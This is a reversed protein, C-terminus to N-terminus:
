RVPPHSVADRKKLLHIGRMLVASSAILPGLCWPSIVTWIFEELSEERSSASIAAVSLCLLLSLGGAFSFLYAMTKKPKEPSALVYGVAGGLIGGIPVSLIFALIFQGDKAGSEFLAYLGMVIASLVIIGVGGGLFIVAINRFLTNAM